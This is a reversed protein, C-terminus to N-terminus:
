FNRPSKNDSSLARNKVFHQVRNLRSSAIQL